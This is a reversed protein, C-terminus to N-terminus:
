KMSSLSDTFKIHEIQPQRTFPMKYGPSSKSLQEQFDYFHAFCLNIFRNQKSLRVLKHRIIKTKSSNIEILQDCIRM